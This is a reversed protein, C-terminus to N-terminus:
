SARRELVADDFEGEILDPVGGYSGSLYRREANEEKRPRFDALSFLRSAGDSEKEVFWVQDRLLVDDALVIGLLAIDHTTFLLQARRPNTEPKEFLRVLVATLRPHLSTDLEDVVLTRGEDLADLVAPLFRVWSQTGASQEDFSLTRAGGAHTFRIEESVPLTPGGERELLDRLMVEARSRPTVEIGVIGMDACRVLGVLRDRAAPDNLMRM